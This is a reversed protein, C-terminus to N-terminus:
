DGYAEQDFQKDSAYVKIWFDDLYTRQATENRICGPSITDGEYGLYTHVYNCPVVM